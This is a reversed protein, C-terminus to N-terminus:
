QPMAGPGGRKFGRRRAMGYTSGNPITEGTALTGDRHESYKHAGANGVVMLSTGGITGEFSTQLVSGNAPTPNSLTM